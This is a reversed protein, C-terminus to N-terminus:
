GADDDHAPAESAWPFFVRQAIGIANFLTIGIIALFVLAGFALATKLYAMSSYVIYGLGFGASVFEAVVAGIVSLAISVRLGSFIYRVAFPFRIRLLERRADQRVSRALELFEPPTAMLGTATSVIIPFIAVVCAVIVKSVFGAGVAVVIIPALAIIPTSQKIVLFPYIARYATGSSAIAVAIPVGLLVAFAFVALITALTEYIHRWWHPGFDQMAQVIASPRPLLFEPISFVWCAIEWVMLAALVAIVATFRAMM